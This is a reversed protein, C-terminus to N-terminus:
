AELEAKLAELEQQESYLTNFAEDIRSALVSRSENRNYRVSVTNGDTDQAVVVFVNADETRSISQVTWAM